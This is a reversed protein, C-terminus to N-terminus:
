IVKNVIPVRLWLISQIIINFANKLQMKISFGERHLHSKIRNLWIFLFPWCIYQFVDQGITESKKIQNRHLFCQLPTNSNLHKGHVELEM